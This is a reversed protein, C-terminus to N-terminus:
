KNLLLQLADTKADIIECGTGSFQVSHGLSSIKAVSFLNYALGPVHLVDALTCRLSKDPFKKKISVSGEGVAELQRDDGMEVPHPRTLVKITKM